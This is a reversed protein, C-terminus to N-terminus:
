ADRREDGEDRLADAFHLPPDEVPQCTFKAEVRVRDVGRHFFRPAREGFSAHAERIRAWLAGAFPWDEGGPGSWFALAFEHSFAARTSGNAALIIAPFDRNRSGVCAVLSARSRLSRISPVSLRPALPGIGLAEVSMM